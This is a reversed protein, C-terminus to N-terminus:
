TVLTQSSLKLPGITEISVNEVAIYKLPNPLIFILCITTQYLLTIGAEPLRGSVEAVMVKWQV